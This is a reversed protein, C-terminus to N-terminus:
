QVMQGGAANVARRYLVKFSLRKAALGQVLNNPSPKSVEGDHETIAEHGTDKSDGKEYWAYAFAPRFECLHWDHCSDDEKSSAEDQPTKRCYTRRAAPTRASAKDTQASSPRATTRWLWVSASNRLLRSM